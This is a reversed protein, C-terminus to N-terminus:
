TNSFLDLSKSSLTKYSNMKNKKIPTKTVLGEKFAVVKLWELKELYGDVIYM